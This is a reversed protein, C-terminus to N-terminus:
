RERRAPSNRLAHLVMNCAEEETLDHYETVPGREGNYTVDFRDRGRKGLSLTGYGGRTLLSEDLGETRIIKYMQEVTLGHNHSQNNAPSSNLEDPKETNGTM